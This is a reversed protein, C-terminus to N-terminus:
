ISELFLKQHYISLITINNIEGDTLVTVFIFTWSKSSKITDYWMWMGRNSRYVVPLWLLQHSTWFARFATYIWFKVRDSWYKVMLNWLFLELKQNKLGWNLNQFPGNWICMWIRSYEANQFREPINSYLKFSVQSNLHFCFPWIKKTKSTESTTWVLHVDLHNLLWYYEPINRFQM